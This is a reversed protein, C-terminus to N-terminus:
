SDGQPAWVSGSSQRVVSAASPSASACHSPCITRDLQSRTHHPCDIHDVHREVEPDVRASSIGVSIAWGQTAVVLQQPALRQRVTHMEDEVGSGGIGVQVM